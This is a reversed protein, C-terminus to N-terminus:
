SNMFPQHRQLFTAQWLRLLLYDKSKDYNTSIWFHSNDGTEADAEFQHFRVISKLNKGSRYM